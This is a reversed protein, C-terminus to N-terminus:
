SPCPSRRRLPNRRHYQPHIIRCRRLFERLDCVTRCYATGGPEEDFGFGYGVAIFSVGCEAAADMDSDSDGIMVADDLGTQLDELCKRILDSKRLTGTADMANVTDFYDYLGINRLLLGAYDERKNTAVGLRVGESGLEELLPIIGPYVTCDMLYKEKYIPRFTEYFRRIQENTYGAKRGISDGIPPGICSRIFGDDLEAYDLIKLTDKVAKLIGPGSDILTGDLDFLVAKHYM